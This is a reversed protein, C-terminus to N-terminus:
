LGRRVLESRRNKLLAESHKLRNLRAEAKALADCLRKREISAAERELETKRIESTLRVAGLIYLGVLDYKM